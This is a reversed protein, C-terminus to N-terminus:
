TSQHERGVDFVNGEPDSLTTWSTGYEDFDGVRTAGLNLARQVDAAPDTLVLDIHLRNKGGRPEPVLLFMLAPFTRDPTAPIAAYFRSAGDEVPRDLLASWFQALEIANSSDIVIQGFGLTSPMHGGATVSGVSNPANHLTQSM